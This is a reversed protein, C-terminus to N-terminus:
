NLKRGIIKILEYWKKKWMEQIDGSTKHYVKALNDMRKLDQKAINM